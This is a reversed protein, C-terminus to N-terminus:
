KGRVLFLVRKVLNKFGERHSYSHAKKILEIKRKFSKMIGRPLWYFFDRLLDYKVVEKYISIIKGMSLRDDITRLLCMYHAKKRDHMTFDPTEVCPEECRFDGDALSTKGIEDYIKGYKEFWGRIATSRYPIVMNWYITDPNYKNAFKISEKIRKLNDGPLGIIFCFSLLMKHKKVVKAAKEITELTEGKNIKNFVEPHAHEVAIGVSDCNAKKLLILLRDNVDDARMNTIAIRMKIKKVYIKLFRYFREPIVLPNDDQVFVHLHPNLEKKARELEKICDEPDRPRWKKASLTMVPCFSCRYPCGRSTMIPYGRIHRWGYFTKYDPYPIDNPDVIEKPIIIIPKKEKKAKEVVEIIILESEGVSIYDIRNDEQMEKSYLTPHSGGVIIPLSSNTKNISEIIQNAEKTNATYISIGIIDPNFKNIFYSIPNANPILNYDVVFADHGRKKLISALIAIGMHPSRSTTTSRRPNIFLIRKKKKELVKKIKKLEKSKM